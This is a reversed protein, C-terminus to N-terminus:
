CNNDHIQGKITSLSLYVGVDHLAEKVAGRSMLLDLAGRDVLVNAKKKGGGGM